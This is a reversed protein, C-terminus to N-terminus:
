ALAATRELVTGEPMDVVAQFESKNDSPLMKFVVWQGLALGASTIVELLM